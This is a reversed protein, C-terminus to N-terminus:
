VITYRRYGITIIRTAALISSNERDLPTQAGTTVIRAKRSQLVWPLFGSHRDARVKQPVASLDHGSRVQDVNELWQWDTSAAAKRTIVGCRTAGPGLSAHCDIDL